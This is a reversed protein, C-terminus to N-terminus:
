RDRSYCVPSDSVCGTSHVVISVDEVDMRQRLAIVGHAMEAILVHRGFNGDSCWCHRCCCHTRCNDSTSCRNDSSKSCIASQHLRRYEIAAGLTANHYRASWCGGAISNSGAIACPESSGDDHNADTCEHAGCTVEVAGGITGHFQENKGGSGDDCVQPRTGLRSM